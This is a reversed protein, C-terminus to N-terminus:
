RRGKVEIRRTISVAGGEEMKLSCPPLKAKDGPARAAAGGESSRLSDKPAPAAANSQALLAPFPSEPAGLLVPASNPGVLSFGTMSGDLVIFMEECLQWACM